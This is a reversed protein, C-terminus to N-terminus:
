PLASVSDDLKSKTRPRKGEGLIQWTCFAGSTFGYLPMFANDNSNSRLLQFIHRKQRIQIADITSALIRYKKWTPYSLYQQDDQSLM